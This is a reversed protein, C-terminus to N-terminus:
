LFRKLSEIMDEESSIIKKAIQIARNEASNYQNLYKNLSKIGMNCGDTMLDAVTHDDGITNMKINIKFWSMSKAMPNPEKDDSGLIKLYQYIANNDEVHHRRTTLLIEKLEDNTVYEIIEDIASIAMKIGSNCEKLLCITDNM